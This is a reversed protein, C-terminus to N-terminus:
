PPTKPVVMIRVKASPPVPPSPPPTATVKARLKKPPPPPDSPTAALLDPRADDTGIVRSVRTWMEKKSVTRNLQQTREGQAILRQMRRSGLFYRMGLRILAVRSLQLDRAVREWYMKEQKTVKMFIAAMPVRMTERRRKVRMAAKVLRPM